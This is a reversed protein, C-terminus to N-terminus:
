PLKLFASYTMRLLDCSRHLFLSSDLESHMGDLKEIKTFCQRPNMSSERIKYTREHAYQSVINVRSAVIIIADQNVTM